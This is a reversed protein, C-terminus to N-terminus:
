RTEIQYLSVRLVIALLFLLGLACVILVQLDPVYRKKSVFM